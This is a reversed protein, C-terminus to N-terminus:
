DPGGDDRALPVATAGSSVEGRENKRACAGSEQEATTNEAQRHETRECTM